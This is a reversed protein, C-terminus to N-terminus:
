TYEEIVISSACVGGFIQTGGSGNFTTTGVNSGGLRVKFTTSSTTGATMVHKIVGTVPGTATAQTIAIAALANATTDQFLAGIINNIASSSVVFTATIVLKNNTNVPTIALTMYQDGETNQPITNDLPITTTGTASTGTTTSVMQVMKGTAWTGDGRWYTTSSASTGSNLNNVSLNGTVGTSLPLGTCSTLTGSTPTGLVPTTFSPSTAFVLAGSGTEDTIASALNASSPTALFTAVNSGLGSIGTSVPLGTCNTLTGSAPTGLVPTTFTPSTARVLSGSGTIDSAAPVYRKVTWVSAGTGSTANSILSLATNAAMAQITNAGSSQVTVVGSSLNVIQFETGLALTSVVPMTCTQTTSGTFVQQRTSGVTLTTTGAATVTSTYGALLNNVSLNKNSDWGAFATATPSTTVSTVATGGNAIPLTGTVGTTLPLGTCNTLVGATPTGININPLTTGWSPAGGASTIFVSSNATTIGSVTNGAASYFAIANITSSNVKGYAITPDKWSNDGCLFTSASANTGSNYNNVSLNGTVTHSNLNLTGALTPSPDMNLTPAFNLTGTTNPDGSKQGVFYDGVEANGLNFDLHLQKVTENPM